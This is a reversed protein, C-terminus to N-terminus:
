KELREDLGPYLNIGIIEEVKDISVMYKSYPKSLKEHPCLYAFAKSSDGVLVTKYFYKPIGVENPGITSTIGNFVPGTYVILSDYSKILNRVEAEINKWGYRNFAPLQPSINTLYFSEEMTELSYKSVAAPKLHGRDYGSKYYDNLSASGTTIRNDAKFNDTRSIKNFVDRKNITYKVYYPQEWKECYQFEIDKGKIVPENGQLTLEASDFTEKKEIIHVGSVLVLIAVGFLLTTAM